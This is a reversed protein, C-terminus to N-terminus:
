RQLTESLIIFPLPTKEAKWSGKTRRDAWNFEKFLFCDNTLSGKQLMPGGTVVEAKLFEARRQGRHNLGKTPNKGRRGREKERGEGVKRRKKEREGGEAPM